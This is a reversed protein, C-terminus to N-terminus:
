DNYVFGLNSYYYGLGPNIRIANELSTVARKLNPRPDQGKAILTKGQFWLACALGNYLSAIGPNIARAKEFTTIAQQLSAHPPIGRNMEYHGKRVFVNGMGNFALVFTPDITIAKRFSEVAVQFVPIPDQGTSLLFEGKLRNTEGLIMYAEANNPQLTIALQANAISKAVAEGTEKGTFRRHRAVWRYVSAKTVFSKALGPDIMSAKECLSISSEVLNELNVGKYHKLKILQELVRSLGLYGRIDSEGIIIVERFANKAKNCYNIAEPNNTEGMAMTLLINGELIRAEYLWPSKELTDKVVSQLIQLAIPYKKEYFAILAEIYEKYEDQIQAGIRLFRVAPERYVQEIRKRRNEKLEKNEIRDAKESERFYLEGLCRGLELAVEPIQYGSQWANNLHEEAEAYEQLAMYGLGMAYHGPGFELEGGSTIREEIRQIHEKITNKERSIDHLPVLRSYRIISEIKETERNMQQVIVARRSAEWITQLWLGTLIMIIISAVAIVAVPLKHKIIKRKLRYIITAPRAKIPDGDLYMRLEEALEKASGYRRNADKEMCKMVITELDVPIRPNLKRVPEPDEQIVKMLVNVPNTGQFPVRGGLVEYLTVGLSYVDCRRDLNKLKGMAHEPSIYFPTGVVMGTSTLAPAEQERAIGFDMIFPKWSGEETQTIMINSPKVDRHVLGKRHAAHLGLAVEKIIRIIEELSLEDNLDALSKGDIFQMAIYPHGESEGSEYVKCVHRHDIQAQIRAERLFREVVQPKECHLIKLAIHRKLHPDYAKYVEGMGGKGLLKELKYRGCTKRQSDRAEIELISHKETVTMSGITVFQM